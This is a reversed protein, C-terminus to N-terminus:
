GVRVPPELQRLVRCPNGAAIVNAPISRSVVSGAGIVSNDGIYVGKLIISGMGVFVNQGIEVPATAIDAPVQSHRTAPSISHFDTDVVTVNAGLMTDSGICVRVAACITAGSIGVRDGIILQAGPRLTRLVVPHNVGLATSYISSCLITHGGIAIRSDRWRSVMPLGIIDIGQGLEVGIARLM